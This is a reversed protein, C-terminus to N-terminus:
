GLGQVALVVARSDVPAVGPGARDQAEARGPALCLFTLVHTLALLFLSRM